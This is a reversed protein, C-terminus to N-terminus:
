TLQRIAQDGLDKAAPKILTNIAPVLAPQPAMHVTGYENFVSHAVDSAAGEATVQISDRYEGTDVAVRDRWEKAVKESWEKRWPDELIPTNLRAIFTKLDTM